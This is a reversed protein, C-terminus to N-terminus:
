CHIVLDDPCFLRMFRVSVIVGDREARKVSNEVQVMCSAVTAAVFTMRM